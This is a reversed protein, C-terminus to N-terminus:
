FRRSGLVVHQDKPLGGESANKWFGKKISNIIWSAASCPVVLQSKTKRLSFTQEEQIALLSHNTYMTYLAGTDFPCFLERLFYFGAQNYNNKDLQIINTDTM